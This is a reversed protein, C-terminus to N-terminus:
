QIISKRRYKIFYIDKGHAMFKLMYKTRPYGEIDHLWLEPELLNEFGPQEAMLSAVDKGYDEFDTTFVFEAGTKLYPLLLDIFDQKVLRRKRQYRKPWPDPCNIYVAQISDPQLCRRIFSRAEDRVVRINALEAREARRCSKLCGKNYFDIAIFNFEPHRSAMAVLFDGIGCGIELVLPNTNGFVVNWEPKESISDGSLFLPSNIPILNHM